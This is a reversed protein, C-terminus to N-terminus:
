PRRAVICVRALEEPNTVPTAPENVDAVHADVWGASRVANIVENIPYSWNHIVTDLRDHLGDPRRVAGSVRLTAELATAVGRVVLLADPLDRVTVCNAQQLGRGTLMDFAMLGGSDVARFMAAAYSQLRFLSSLHNPLDYTSVAFASTLNVAFDAADAQVLEVSQGALRHRAVALMAPSRDVGIVRYGETALHEAVIGTGCGVDVATWPAEPRLQRHLQVLRPAMLRPFEQWFRDYINAFLHEYSNARHDM